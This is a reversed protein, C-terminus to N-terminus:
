NNKKSKIDLINNESVDNIHGCSKCKWIGKSCDFGPQYNLLEHCNDCFWYCDLDNIGNDVLEVLDLKPYKHKAKIVALLRGVFLGDFDPYDALQLTATIEEESYGLVHLVAIADSISITGREKYSKLRSVYEMIIRNNM